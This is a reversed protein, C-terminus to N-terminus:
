KIKKAGFLKLIKIFGNIFRDKLAVKKPEMSLDVEIPDTDCITEAESECVSCVDNTESNRLEGCVACPYLKKGM